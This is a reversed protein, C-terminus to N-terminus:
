GDVFGALTELGWPQRRSVSSLGVQVLGEQTWAVHYASLFSRSGLDTRVFDQPETNDFPRMFLLFL